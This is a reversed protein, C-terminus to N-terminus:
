SMLKLIFMMAITCIALLAFAKRISAFYLLIVTEKSKKYGTIMAMLLPKGNLQYLFIALIHICSVVILALANIEHVNKLFKITQREFIVKSDIFESLAIGTLAQSFLLTLMLLVMLGGLPNHGVHQKENGKVYDRLKNISPAFHIFQSTDSGIFGWGIRWLILIALLIGFREHLVESGFLGFGSFALGIFLIGQIWHYIRTPIDWVKLM